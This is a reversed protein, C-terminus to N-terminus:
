VALRFLALTEISSLEELGKGILALGDNIRLLLNQIHGTNENVDEIDRTSYCFRFQFFRNSHLRLFQSMVDLFVEKLKSATSIPHIFGDLAVLRM